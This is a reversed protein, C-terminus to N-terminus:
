DVVVLRLMLLAAYHPPAALVTFELQCGSIKLLHSGINVGTASAYHPGATLLLFELM